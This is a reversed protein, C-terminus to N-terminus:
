VKIDVIKKIVVAGVIQMIIAVTIMKRGIERNFLLMVYEPNLYYVTFFLVIPLGMLVVGSIRGEGTLAKVQGLIKFRERVIYSIKNLIEALDGGAQRQIAVATVFFQLDMNPIRLLMNRLSQEMSIGLNQEDYVNRFEVSIPAPMETSVVNLGSSLSHGSRLARSILELADPLQKEFKAFRARRRWWLWLWPGCFGLFAAVPILPAPARVVIALLALGGAAGGCVLLFHEIKIPSNAQRFFMPLKGFRQVVGGLFGQATSMGDRLLQDTLEKKSPQAAGTFAALRTELTTDTKGQFAQSLGFVLALVGVFAAIMIILNPDM